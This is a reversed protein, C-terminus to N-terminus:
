QIVSALSIAPFSGANRLCPAHYRQQVAASPCRVINVHFISMSYLHKLKIDVDCNWAKMQWFWSVDTPFPQKMSHHLASANCTVEKSIVQIILNFNLGRWTSQAWLSTLSEQQGSISKKIWPNSRHEGFIKRTDYKSCGNQVKVFKCQRLKWTSNTWLFFEGLESTATGPLRLINKKQRSPKLTRM